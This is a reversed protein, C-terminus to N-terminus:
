QGKKDAGRPAKQFRKLLAQIMKWFWYTNLLLLVTNGILYSIALTMPLSQAELVAHTDQAKIKPTSIEGRDASQRVQIAQWIDSYILVSQYTGWVLRCGGFAFILIIGNVLQLLSGTQGLKDLFWHFNLFPTSLEYLM